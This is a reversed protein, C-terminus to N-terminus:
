ARPRGAVLAVLMVGIGVGFSAGVLFDTTGGAPLFRGLLQALSVLGMGM